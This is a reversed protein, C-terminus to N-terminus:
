PALEYLDELLVTRGILRYGEWAIDWVVAGDPTIERVRPTTGTNHLTNGSPLRRAEGSFEADIGDGLGHSWIQHLTQGDPDIEYERVVADIDNETAHTSLLLTGQDTITTGHQFWFTADPPDVSWSENLHSWWNLVDGTALDLELVSDPDPLSVLVSDTAESLFIANSHCWGGLAQTVYFDTCDWVTEHTGDPYLRDLTEYETLANGWLLSGDPLERFAHHLGPTDYSETVVGDIKMRHVKSAAGSDLDAWFTAEDWLIDGDRSVQLYITFNYGEGRRAWVVRGQRDVIFMWYHGFFWGGPSPNISGLMFNTGPEWLAPESVLVEPLPLEEPVLGTSATVEDSVAEAGDEESVVRVRVETDYPIGLLLETHEGAERFEAPSRSWAGEDFGYEVWTTAASPQQWSLYVLSEISEHLQWSLDTAAALPPDEASPEECAVLACAVVVLAFPIRRGTTM